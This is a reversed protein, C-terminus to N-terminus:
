PLVVEPLMRDGEVRYVALMRSGTVMRVPGDAQVSGVLGTSLRRGNAVAGVLHGTVEVRPLHSLGEGPTLMVRDLRDESHLEVMRDIATAREVSLVGNRVRRLATLHARGGLERALDDALVRVYLGRGGVVRFRVRPYPGPDFGEIALHDVHVTRPPREIEQGRRALDHLRRGGVRVASFMPPVQTIEGEFRAMTEAVEGAGVDMPTRDLVEGDADLTDTAVGFCAVAVYEKPQDTIFRLLRTAAGLGLVLLGTAMPDLTGAHGIKRTAFLTRAKAVVDHSTWGAAKDVLVFGPGATM